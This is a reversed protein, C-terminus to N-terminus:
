RSVQFDRIIDDLTNYGGYVGYEYAGLVFTSGTTWHPASKTHAGTQVQVENLFLKSASGDWAITVKMTVGNGFLAEEMGQPVYYSQPEGGVRYNVYMQKAPTTGMVFYFLHNNADNDRVDFAARYSGATLRQALSRRSTLHFSIQGRNVDFINGVPTGTFKYYANGTPDCCNLFYVGGSPAFNVSGNNNVINGTFGAPAAAPTVIAGTATGSAESRAGSIHLLVTGSAPEPPAGGSGSNVPAPPTSTTPGVTFDGILDDSVNYGGHTLYEYAGVNFVSGSSWSPTSANFPTSQVVAGNLYLQSVGNSWRIRVQLTIRDGFLRDETGAPAYYYFSSGGVMYAIRLLGMGAETFFLFRDVNSGDRVHFVTRYSGAARREAFTMRSTLQFSLEGEKVDFLSGVSAGTFKYYSQGTNACCRLFYVGKGPEFNVSGGPKVVVEGALGAPAAAPTVVSGNSNGSIESPTGRLLFQSTRVAAPVLSVTLSATSGGYSATLIVSQAILVGGTQATFTVTSAGTAVTVTAPATLLTNSTSVAVLASATLSRSLTVTCSASSNAALISPCQLSTLRVPAALSLTASKSAGNATATITVSEDATTAGATAPFSTSTAGSNVTVSSPVTLRTSSSSLSVVLGGTAAPASLSVTCTASAGSSLSAPCTVSALTGTAAPAVVTGGTSTVQVSNGALSAGMSSDVGVAVSGSASVTGSLTAVVGNGIVKDNVGSLICKYAAHNGACLLSKGAATAAPGAAVAFNTLSGAPYRLIWQLNAPEKGVPSALSLDLSVPSGAASTRSALILEQAQATEPGIALAVACVVLSATTPTSVNRTAAM